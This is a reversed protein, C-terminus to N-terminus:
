NDEERVHGTGPDLVWRSGEPDRMLIRDPAPWAVPLLGLESSGLLETPALSPVSIEVVSTFMYRQGCPACAFAALLAEGNPSWVLDRVVSERPCAERSAVFPDPVVRESRSDLDQLIIPGEWGQVYAAAEDGPSVAMWSAFGEHLSESAGTALDLRILGHGSHEAPAFCGDGARRHTFYLSPGSASWSLAVPYAFGMSLATEYPLTEILWRIPTDRGEVVFEVYDGADGRRLVAQAIWAGDPSASTRMVLSGPTAVSPPSAVPEVAISSATPAETPPHTPSTSVARTPSQPHGRTSCAALALLLVLVRPNTHM